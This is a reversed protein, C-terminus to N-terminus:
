QIDRVWKEVGELDVWLKNQGKPKHVQVGMVWTGRHLRKKIAETSDNFVTCYLELPIVTIPYHSIFEAMGLLDTKRSTDM